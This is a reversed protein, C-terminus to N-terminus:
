FALNATHGHRYADFIGRTQSSIVASQHGVGVATRMFQHQGEKLQASQKMLNGQYSLVDRHSRVTSGTLKGLHQLYEKLLVANQEAGAAAGAADIVDQSSPNLNPRGAFDYIRNYESHNIDGTVNFGNGQGSSQNILSNATSSKGSFLIGPM